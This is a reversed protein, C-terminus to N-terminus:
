LVRLSLQLRISMMLKSYKALFNRTWIPTPHENKVNRLPWLTTTCRFRRPTYNRNGYSAGVLITWFLGGLHEFSRQGLHSAKEPLVTPAIHGVFPIQELRAQDAVAVCIDHPIADQVKIFDVGRHKLM